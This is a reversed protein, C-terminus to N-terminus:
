GGIKILEDIYNLLWTEPKITFWESKYKSRFQWLIKHLHKEIKKADKAPKTYVLQLNNPNGIQLQKLRKKPHKSFGIKINESDSIIYIHKM